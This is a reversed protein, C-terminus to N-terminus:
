DLMIYKSPLYKRDYSTNIYNDVTYSKKIHNETKFFWFIRHEGNQM